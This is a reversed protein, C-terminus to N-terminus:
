PTETIEALTLEILVVKQLTLDICSEFHNTSWERLLSDYETRANRHVDACILNVNIDLM